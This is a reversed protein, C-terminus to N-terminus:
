VSEIDETDLILPAQSLEKNETIFKVSIAVQCNLCSLIYIPISYHHEEDEFRLTQAFKQFSDPMKAMSKANVAKVSEDVEAIYQLSLKLYLDTKCYPCIIM